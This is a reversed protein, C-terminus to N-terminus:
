LLRLESGIPDIRAYQANMAKRLVAEGCGIAASLGFEACRIAMHSNAGGWATVLGAIKQHFLWDFGPDAQGIVVIAGQLDFEQNFSKGELVVVRGQAVQMGVFNPMVGLTDALYRDNERVLVPSVIIQAQQSHLAKANLIRQHWASETQRLDVNVGIEIEDLTLWSAQERNIGYEQLAVAIRDLTHSVLCSLVFKGWERAATTQQVFTIWASVEIEYEAERLLRKLAVGEGHRIVFSRISQEDVAPQAFCLESWTLQNIDFTGPRMRGHLEWLAGIASNESRLLPTSRGSVQLEHARAPSLAGRQVASRLHTQGVFALRALTAFALGARRCLQLMEPWVTTALSRRHLTDITAMQQRLHSCDKIDVLDRGLQGLLDTWQQLYRSGLIPVWYQQISNESAFDKVTRFVQFEVKDHLEPQESLKSIWANVVRTGIDASLGAPLLSNASRRLDVWPRGGIPNLLDINQRPAPAYGLAARAQWWTGRSILSEFLSLALPRPHSGILEAPNWDSMLSLVTSSGLIPECRDREKLFGLAPLLVTPRGTEWQSCSVIPRVQLLRIELSRTVGVTLAFEIEFPRSEFRQEMELILSLVLALSPDFGPSLLTNEVSQRAIAFLRGNARGSTVAACDHKALEICYWPAGDRIRHTSAVGASVVDEVMAQVMVQDRMHGPLSQAVQGIADALNNGDVELLSLFRGAQSAGFQDEAFADSRVAFRKSAIVKLCRLAFEESDSKCVGCAATLFPPIASEPLTMALALLTASKGLGLPLTHPRASKYDSTM